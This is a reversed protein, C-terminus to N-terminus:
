SADNLNWDYELFTIKVKGERIKAQDEPKDALLDAYKGFFSELSTFGRYGKEFDKGYWNFIMSVELKGSKVDYRNRSRDKLFRRLNDELQADLKEATFAENRLAPCGISACNVAAHIRPDDYLDPKRIMDHEIWDLSRKEGLLTFFEKKWPNKLFSGLEKISKVDPYKTLVLNITFANYANVLFALQRNKDWGDFSKRSVGSFEDLCTQLADRDKLFGAYSVQSATGGSIWRVNKQVLQEWATYQHDFAAAPSAALILITFIIGTQKM